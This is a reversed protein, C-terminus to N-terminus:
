VSEPKHGEPRFMRCIDSSEGSEGGGLVDELNSFGTRGLYSNLMEFALQERLEEKEDRKSM